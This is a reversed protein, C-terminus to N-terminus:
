KMHEVQSWSVNMYVLLEWMQAGACEGKLGGPVHMYTSASMEM